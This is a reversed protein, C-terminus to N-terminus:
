KVERLSKIVNNASMKVNLAKAVIESEERPTIVGDAMAERTTRQLDASSETTVSSATSVCDQAPDDDMAMRIIGILVEKEADNSCILFRHLPLTTDDHRENEYLSWPGKNTLGAALAAAESSGHRMRIRKTLAKIVDVSM